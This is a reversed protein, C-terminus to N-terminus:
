KYKEHAEIVSDVAWILIWIGILTMLVGPLLNEAQFYNIVFVLAFLLLMFVMGAILLFFIIVMLDLVVEGIAKLWNLM